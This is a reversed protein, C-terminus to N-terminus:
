IMSVRYGRAALAPAIMSQQVEAGGVVKIDNSRSIVPWTTPAVFCISPKQASAAGDSPLSAFRAAASMDNM